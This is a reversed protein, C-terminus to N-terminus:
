STGKLLQSVANLRTVFLTREAASIEGDSLAADLKQVANKIDGIAGQNDPEELREIASEVKDVAQAVRDADRDDAIADLEAAIQELQAKPTAPVPTPSPDIPPTVVVPPLSAPPPPPPPPAPGTSARPSETPTTPKAEPEDRTATPHAREQAAPPTSAKPEATRHQRVPAEPGRQEATPPAAVPRTEDAREGEAAPAAAPAALARTRPRPAPKGRPSAAARPSSRPSPVTHKPRAVRPAASAPAAGVALEQPALRITGRRPVRKTEAVIAEFGPVRVAVAQTREAVGVALRYVVPPLPVALGSAALMPIPLCVMVGILALRKWGSM